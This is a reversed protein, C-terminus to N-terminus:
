DTFLQWEGISTYNKISVPGHFVSSGDVQVDEIFYSRDDDPGTWPRPDTFFYTAGSEGGEAPIILTSIRQGAQFQLKQNDLATANRVHFGVTGVEQSTTWILLLEGKVIQIEMSDITALTIPNAAYGFDSTDNSEAEAITISRIQDNDNTTYLGSLVNNSDTVQIIYDGAALDTFEYFGASDTTTTASATEGGDIVGNGNSDQILAITVNAIGSEGAEQITSRNSDNWITDGIRGENCTTNINPLNVNVQFGGSMGTVTTNNVGGLTVELGDNTFGAGLAGSAFGPQSTGFVDDSYSFSGLGGSFDEDIVSNSDYTIQIDDYFIEAIEGSATKETFFGGFTFTQNGGAFNSFTNTYAQWGSDDDPGGGNAGARTDLDVVTPGLQIRATADEGAETGGDLIVRYRLSVVLDPTGTACDSYGFDATDFNQDAGLSVPLPEASTTLFLGSLLNSTDTVVVLYEGAPLGTFEYNGSSDTTTTGLLQDSPDLRDNNNGDLYLAMTINAIGSEGGGQVGDQDDDSFVTDGIRGDPEDYGFDITNISQGASTISVDAPEGLITTTLAGDVVDNSDTVAVIYEGIGLGTFEYNGNADTTDVALLTDNADLANDNNEDRYLAVTVNAIGQESGNQVRNGDEDDWVLNGITANGFFYGFDANFNDAGSAVTVGIETATSPSGGTLVGATDTVVVYNDAVLSTFLYRGNADTTATELITEGPDAVGDGNADEVLNVTVGAIGPEGPDRVSDGSIDNWVTDGIRSFQRYGFDADYFQDGATLSVDIVAGTTSAGFIVRNRDTATVIYEGGSLNGFSYVGSSDTTTQALLTDGADLLNDNNVDQYLDITVNGIGPEGPDFIGDGDLDSFVLDGILGSLQYGFDITDDDENASLGIFQTPNGNTTTTLTAGVLPGTTDIVRVHYGGPAATISDLPQLGLFTYNGNADTLTTQLLTDSADLTRSGNDDRWLEIRVNPIGPEGTDFFGDGDLDEWVLDGISALPEDYGFDANRFDENLGLNVTRPDGGASTLTGNINSNLDTVDVFYRDEDLGTFLYDGNIDTVTTGVLEDTGIDLSNNGNTDRYLSITVESIGAEGTDFVGDGDDDDFVKDGISGDPQDYGYDANNFDQDRALNVFLPDAVGNTQPGGIVNNIDNVKVWYRDPPLGVFDYSGDAGTLQIRFLEDDTGPEYVSDGDDIYLEMQVNQIGPETADKVGDSDQDNWVLDGISGDYFPDQQFFAVSGSGDLEFRVEDFKEISGNIVGDDFEDLEEVTMEDIFDFSRDGFAITNDFFVSSSNSFESFNVTIDASGSNDIFRVAGNSANDMDVWYFVLADQPTDSEFIIANAGSGQDNEETTSLQGAAIEANTPRNAQVIVLNGALFFRANGQAWGFNNPGPPPPDNSFYELDEDAGNAPNQNSDYLVAFDSTNAGNIASITVGATLEFEDDMIRGEPFLDFDLAVKTQASGPQCLGIIIAALSPLLLQFSLHKAPM